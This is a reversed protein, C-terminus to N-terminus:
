ECKRSLMKLGSVEFSQHTAGVFEGQAQAGAREPAGTTGTARPDAAAPSMRGTVAVRQGVHEALNVSSGASLSYTTNAPTIPTARPATADEPVAKSTPPYSDQSPRRGELTYMTASKGGIDARSSKLCGSIVMESPQGRSVANAQQGTSQTGAQAFVSVSACFASAVAFGSRRYPM